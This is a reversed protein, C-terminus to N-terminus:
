LSRRRPTGSIGGKWKDLAAHFQQHLKRPIKKLTQDWAGGLYKPFPHHKPWARSARYAKYADYADDAKSIITTGVVIGVGEVTADRGADRLVQGAMEQGQQFNDCANPALNHIGLVVATIIWDVM